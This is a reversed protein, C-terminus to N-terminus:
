KLSFNVTVTMVVPVAQGNLLAPTFRWQQVASVAAQDLLPIGRLVRVSQVGGAADIVAELVVVGEKRAAQALAPYIPDVNVIKRPAQMGSHLPIPQTPRPPPLPPPPANSTLPGLDGIGGATHALGDVAITATSSRVDNEIGTEDRVGQPEVVPAANPSVAPGPAAVRQPVPPPVTAVIVPIEEFALASRPLPLPGVSYIQVYSVLAIVIAHVVVSVAKFIRAM